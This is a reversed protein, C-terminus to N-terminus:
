QPSDFGVGVTQFGSDDALDVETVHQKRAEIMPGINGKGVVETYPMSLSSAHDLVQNRPEHYTRVREGDTRRAPDTRYHALIRAALVRFADRQNSSRNKNRTGVASLGTAIHTIRCCNDHKNRHQGGKGEGSYWELNFDKKTLHLEEAMM